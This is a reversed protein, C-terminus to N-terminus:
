GLASLWRGAQQEWQGYRHAYDSIQVTQAASGFSKGQWGRVDLLGRSNKGNPDSPGGYFVRISREANMIQAKTGWGQSPRQQFLGLSDRDGGGLNRMSSEVMSTALAIQIGREPVGLQRGVRIILRANAAQEADLRASRQTNAPLTLKLKQGPYIISSAGLDNAELIVAVTTGYKKAIAYMSDGAAVTHTKPAAAPKAAPKVVSAPAPKAAQLALKQGPYIIASAGLRNAALIASVSTGYKRAISYVTDGKAVTHTRASASAPKATPKAAPGAPAAGSVILRQGPHIVASAGLRNAALIASVSTGYKRAIGYVTDGKAVTHTKPTVAAPAAAAPRAAAAPKQLKLKQGPYIVSRMTMGNWALIDATRLGHKKAITWVTDGARVTYSAPAVATPVVRAHTPAASLPHTGSHQPVLGQRAGAPVTEASAPAVTLTAALAGVVAASVGVSLSHERATFTRM